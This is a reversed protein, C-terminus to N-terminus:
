FRDLSASSLDIKKPAPASKDWDVGLTNSPLLCDTNSLPNMDSAMLQPGRSCIIYYNSWTTECDEAINM